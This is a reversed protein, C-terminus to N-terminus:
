SRRCFVSVPVRAADKEFFHSSLLLLLLVLLVLLFPPRRERVLDSASQGVVTAKVPASFDRLLSLVPPSSGSHGEGLEFTFSQSAERLELIQTGILDKGTERDVLGVAVPILFPAKSPQGQACCM